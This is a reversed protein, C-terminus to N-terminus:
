HDEFSALVKLDLGQCYMDAIRQLQDTPRAVRLKIQRAREMSRHFSDLLRQTADSITDGLSRTEFTLISRFAM